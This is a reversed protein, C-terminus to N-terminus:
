EAEKINKSFSIINKCKEFISLEAGNKLDILHLKIRNSTCILNTVIARLVTSKGSGSEGAILM